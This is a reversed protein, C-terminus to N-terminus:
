MDSNYYFEDLAPNGTLSEKHYHRLAIFEVQNGSLDFYDIIARRFQKDHIMQESCTVEYCSTMCNYIVRGREFSKYGRAIIDNADSSANQMVTNSWLTMHNQHDSYQLYPGDQVGNYTFDSQAWVEGNDTYWWIGIQANGRSAKIYRKM